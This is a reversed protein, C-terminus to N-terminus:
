FPDYSAFFELSSRAEELLDQAFPKDVFMRSFQQAEELAFLTDFAQQQKERLKQTFSAKMETGYVQGLEYFVPAYHPARASLLELRQRREVASDLLLAIMLELTLSDPRNNLLRQISQRTRTIGETGKLLKVYEYCPDVYELGFELYAEYAELAKPTMGRLQYIRANSYWQQPSSPNEVLVQGAKLSAFSEQMAAFGERQATAMSSVEQATSETTEQIVALDEELGLISQQLKAVPEFTSALRGEEPGTGILISWFSFLFTAGGSIVLVGPMVSEGPEVGPRRAMMFYIVLSALFALASFIAVWPAFDGLPALVDFVFGLISGILGLPGLTQAYLKKTFPQKM